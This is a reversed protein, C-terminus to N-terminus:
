DNGAGRNLVNSGITRAGGVECENIRRVSKVCKVSERYKNRIRIGVERAHSISIHLAHLAHLGNAM